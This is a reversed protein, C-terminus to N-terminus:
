PDRRQVSGSALSARILGLLELSLRGDPWDGAVIGSRISNSVHELWIDFPDDLEPTMPTARGGALVIQSTSAQNDYLAGRRGLVMLTPSAPSGAPSGLSVLAAAGNPYTLSMSLHSPPGAKKKGVGQAYTAASVMGFLWGVLDIAAAIDWDNTADAGPDTYRIFVPEGIRGEALVEKVLLHRRAFRPVGGAVLAIGKRQCLNYLRDLQAADVAPPGAALIHRGAEAAALADQFTTPGLERILLSDDASAISHLMISYKNAWSHRGQDSACRGTETPGIKSAYLRLALRAIRDFVAAAAGM